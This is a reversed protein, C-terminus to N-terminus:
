SFFNEMYKQANDVFKGQWFRHEFLYKDIENLVVTKKLSWEPAMLDEAAGDGTLRGIVIDSPIVTLQMAVTKVYEELTMPLYEGKAYQEALPTGKLVHLLHIKVEDPHLVGVAAASNLMM